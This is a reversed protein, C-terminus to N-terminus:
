STNGEDKEEEKKARSKVEQVKTYAISAVIMGASALGLLPHDLPITPMYYAIVKVVADGFGTEEIEKEDVLDDKQLEVKYKKATVKIIKNIFYATFKNIYPAFEKIAEETKVETKEDEKKEEHQVEQIFEQTLDEGM